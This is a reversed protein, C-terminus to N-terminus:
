GKAPEHGLVRAMADALRRWRGSQEVLQARGAKTLTYFRARRNNTSTGWKATIWKQSELRQLAPYLAGHDVLLVDQSSEQISRAIGQGHQPGFLLTRLILVDVTGQLLALQDPQTVSRTKM